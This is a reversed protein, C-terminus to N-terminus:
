SLLEKRNTLLWERVAKYNLPATTMDVTILKHAILYRVRSIDDFVADAHYCAVVEEINQVLINNVDEKYLMRFPVGSMEWYTREITLIEQMRHNNAVDSRNNKVSFAELHGCRTVLFDTTMRKKTNFPHRFGLKKSVAVTTDLDLPFQERIDSVTDDWRLLYYYKKEGQSLLEITRGHIWDVINCATGLSNLERVKIYPKYDAGFGTGRGEKIKAAESIVKM